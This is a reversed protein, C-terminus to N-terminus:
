DSDTDCRHSEENDVIVCITQYISDRIKRRNKGNKTISVTTKNPLYTFDVEGTWDLDLFFRSSYSKNDITIIKDKVLRKIRDSYYTSSSM